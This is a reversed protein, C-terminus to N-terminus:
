LVGLILLSGGALIALANIALAAAVRMAIPRRQDKPKPYYRARIPGRRLPQYTTNTM